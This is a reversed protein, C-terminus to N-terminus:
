PHRLSRTSSLLGGIDQDFGCKPVFEIDRLGSALETDIGICAVAELATHIGGEHQGAEFQCRLHNKIEAAALRGFNDDRAIRRRLFLDDVKRKLSNGRRAPKFNGSASM